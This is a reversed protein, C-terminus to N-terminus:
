SGASFQTLLAAGVIITITCMSFMLINLRGEMERYFLIGWAGNICICTQTLPFGLSMGLYKTAQVSGLNAVGWFLGTAFGAVSGERFKLPPFKGRCVVLVYIVSFTPAVVLLGAGLSTFYINETERSDQPATAAFAKYPVMLSGDVLGVVLACMLGQQRSIAVPAAPAPPAAAADGNNVSVSILPESLLPTRQKKEECSKAKAETVYSLDGTLLSAIKQPVDTPSLAVGFIGLMLMVLSGICGSVSAVDEHFLGVGWTFSTVMGTHLVALLKNRSNRM